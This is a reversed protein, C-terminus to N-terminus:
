YKNNALKNFNIINRKVNFQDVTIKQMIYGDKEIIFNFLLGNKKINGGAIKKTKNKGNIWGNSEFIYRVKENKISNLFEQREKKYQENLKLLEVIYLDIAKLREKVKKETMVKINQFKFYEDIVDNRKNRSIFELEPENYLRISINDDLRRSIQYKDGIVVYGSYKDANGIRVNFGLKELEKKLQEM